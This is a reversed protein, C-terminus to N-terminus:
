NADSPSSEDNPPALLRRRAVDEGTAEDVLVFEGTAGATVLRSARESLDSQRAHSTSTYGLV